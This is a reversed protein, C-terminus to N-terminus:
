TLVLRQSGKASASLFSRVDVETRGGGGEESLGQVPKTLPEHPVSIKRVCGSMIRSRPVRALPRVRGRTLRKRWTLLM